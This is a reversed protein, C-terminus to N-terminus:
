NTTTLAATGGEFAPEVLCNPPKQWRGCVYAKGMVGQMAWGDATFLNISTASDNSPPIVPTGAAGGATYYKGTYFDFITFCNGGQCNASQAIPGNRPAVFFSAYTYGPTGIGGVMIDVCFYTNSPSTNCVGHGLTIVTTTQTSAFQAPLLLLSLLSTLAWRKM